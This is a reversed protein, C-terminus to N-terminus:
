SASIVNLFWKKSRAKKFLDHILSAPECLTTQSGWRLGKEDDYIYYGFRINKEDDDPFKILDIVNFYDKGESHISTSGIEVVRDLLEGKRLSGDPYTFNVEEGIRSRIRKIIEMENM